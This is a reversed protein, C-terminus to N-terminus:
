PTKALESSGAGATIEGAETLPATGRAAFLLQLLRLLLGVGDRLRLLFQQERLEARVHRVIQEGRPFQARLGSAM